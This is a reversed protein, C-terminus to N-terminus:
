KRGAPRAAAAVASALGRFGTVRPGLKRLSGLSIRQQGGLQNLKSTPLVLFEWQDLNLPDATALDRHVFLCFVYVEAHRLKPGHYKGTQQNWASTPAIGFEVRSPRTQGWCQLHASSKVEVPVGDRTRLDFTAWEERVDPLCGLACGVLFEAFVGRTANSLLDSASWRWFDQVSDPLQQAGLALRETGQLPRPTRMITRVTPPVRSRPFLAAGHGDQVRPPIAVAYTQEASSADIQAEM